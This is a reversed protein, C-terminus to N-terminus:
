YEYEVQDMNILNPNILVCPISREACMEIVRKVYDTESSQPCLIVAAKDTDQIIDNQINGTYVCPPVEADLTGMKWDRRALAAAGMDPFFIRLNKLPTKDEPDRIAWKTQPEEPEETEASVNLDDSSYGAPNASPDPNSYGAPNAAPNPSSGDPTGGAIEPKLLDELTIFEPVDKVVRRPVFTAKKKEEAETPKLMNMTLDMKRSFTNAFLKIFPLTSKLSTYTQDGVTTDFNILCQTTGMEICEMSRSAAREVADEFSDPLESHDYSIVISPATSAAVERQIEKRLNSFAHLQTESSHHAPQRTAIRFADSRWQLAVVVMCVVLVKVFM